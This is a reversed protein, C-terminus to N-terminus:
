DRSGRTSEKEFAAVAADLQTELLAMRTLQSATPRGEHMNVNGYLTGLEERLKEEGSIGEGQKSSVLAVRQREMEDALATNGAARAKER